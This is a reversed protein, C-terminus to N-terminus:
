SLEHSKEEARKLVEELYEVSFEACLCGNEQKFKIPKDDVVEAMADFIKFDAEIKQMTENHYLALSFPEKRDIHSQLIEKLTIQKEM